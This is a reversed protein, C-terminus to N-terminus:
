EVEAGWEVKLGGLKMLMFLVPIVDVAPSSDTDEPAAGDDPAPPLVPPSPLSGKSNTAEYDMLLLPAEPADSSLQGPVMEEMTIESASMPAPPPSGDLASSYASTISFTGDSLESPSSVSSLGTLHPFLALAAPAVPWGELRRGERGQSNKSRNDGWGQRKREWNTEQGKAKGQGIWVM